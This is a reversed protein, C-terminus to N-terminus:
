LARSEDVVVAMNLSPITQTRISMIQKQTLTVFKEVRIYGLNNKVVITNTTNYHSTTFLFSVLETRPGPGQLHVYNSCLILTRVPTFDFGLFSILDSM